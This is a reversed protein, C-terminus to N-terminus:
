KLWADALQYARSLVSCAGEFNCFLGEIITAVQVSFGYVVCNCPSRITCLTVRSLM